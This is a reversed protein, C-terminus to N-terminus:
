KGWRTERIWTHGTYAHYKGQYADTKYDVHITNSDTYSTVRNFLGTDYAIDRLWETNSKYSGVMIDAALKSHESGSGPRYLSDVLVMEGLEASLAFLDVLLKSVELGPMKVDTDFRLTGGNHSLQINGEALRRITMGRLPNKKGGVDEANYLHVIVASLAAAAADGGTAGATIAAAGSAIAARAYM